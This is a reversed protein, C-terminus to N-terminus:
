VEGENPMLRAVMGRACEFHYSVFIYTFPVVALVSAGHQLALCHYRLFFAAHLSCGQGQGSRECSVLLLATDGRTLREDRDGYEINEEVADYRWTGHATDM